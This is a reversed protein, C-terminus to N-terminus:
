GNGPPPRSSMGRIRVGSAKAEFWPTAHGCGVCILRYAGMAGDVAVAMADEDRPCVVLKGAKFASWLEAVHEDTMAETSAEARVRDDGAM